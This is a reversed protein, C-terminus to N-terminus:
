DSLFMLSFFYCHTKRTLAAAKVRTRSISIVTWIGNQCNTSSGDKRGRTHCSLHASEKEFPYSSLSPHPRRPPPPRSDRLRRQGVIGWGSSSSRNASVSDARNYTQITFGCACTTQLGNHPKMLRSFFAEPFVAEFFLVKKWYESYSFTYQSLFNKTCFGKLKSQSLGEGKLQAAKTKHLGKFDRVPGSGFWM